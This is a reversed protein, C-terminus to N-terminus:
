IVLLYVCVSILTNYYFALVSVCDDTYNIVVLLYESVCPDLLMCTYVYLSKQVFFFFCAFTYLAFSCNNNLFDFLFLVFTFPPFFPTTLVVVKSEHICM